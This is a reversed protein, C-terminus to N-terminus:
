QYQVVRYVVVQPIVQSDLIIQALQAIAAHMKNRVILSLFFQGVLM